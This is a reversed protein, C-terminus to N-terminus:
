KAGLLLILLLVVDGTSDGKETILLILCIILLDEYGRSTLHPLTLKDPLDEKENICREREHKVSTSSTAKSDALTNTVNTPKKQSAPRRGFRSGDYKPPLNYRYLEYEDSSEDTLDDEDSPDYPIRQYRSYVTVDGKRKM